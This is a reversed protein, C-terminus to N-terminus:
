GLLAKLRKILPERLAHVQGFQYSITNVNRVNFPLNELPTSCVHVCPTGNRRAYGVEYLVDPNSESLDAIVAISSRIDGAIREPIDGDFDERDVRICTADVAEAAAVMALWYVDEYQPDFPMSAFITRPTAPSTPEPREAEDVRGPPLASLLSILYSRLGAVSVIGADPMGQETGPVVVVSADASTTSRIREAQSRANVAELLELHLRGKVELIIRRGNAAELLFDPRVGAISPERKWDVELESLVQEVATAASGEDNAERSVRLIQEVTAGLRSPDAKLYLVRQLDSPLKAGSFVIPVVRTGNATALAIQLERNLWQSQQSNPSLLVLFLDSSRIASRIRDELRDGAVLEDRDMWVFAGGQRLEEALPRALDEDEHAYSLFIRPQLPSRMLQM